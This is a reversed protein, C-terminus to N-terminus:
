YLFFSINVKNCPCCDYLDHTQNGYSVLNKKTGPDSPQLKSNFIVSLRNGQDERELSGVDCSCQQQRRHIRAPKKPGARSM